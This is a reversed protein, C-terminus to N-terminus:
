KQQEQFLNMTAIFSEITDIVRKQNDCSIFTWRSSPTFLKFNEPVLLQLLLERDSKEVWEATSYIEGGRKDQLIYGYRSGNKGIYGFLIEEPKFGHDITCIEAPVLLSRKTKIYAPIFTNTKHGWRPFFIFGYETNKLHDDLEFACISSMSEITDQLEENIREYVFGLRSLADRVEICHPYLRLTFFNSNYTFAVSHFDQYEDLVKKSMDTLSVSPNGMYM